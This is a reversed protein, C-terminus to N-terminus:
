RTIQPREVIVYRKKPRNKGGSGREYRKKVNSHSRETVCVKVGGRKANRLQQVAGKAVVRFIERFEM